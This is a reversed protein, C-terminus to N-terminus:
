NARRAVSADLGASVRDLGARITATDRRSLNGRAHRMNREQRDISQLDGLLRRSDRRGISGDDTAHRISRDLWGIQGRVDGPRDGRLTDDRHDQGRMDENPTASGNTSMWRGNGDYFGSTTGAHWRGRADYYGPAGANSWNGNAQQRSPASGSIWAGNRAYQGSVRGAVWNGGREYHGPAMAPMWQDGSGYYGSAGAPVWRDSADYYGREGINDANPQWHGDSGYYGNPAGDVWQGDRDIYGSVSGRPNASAHWRADRDYYGYAHACENNPKAVQNGLLAGGIGGIIAGLTRDGRGAVSSGLLAGVGAGGVTAVVRTSRQQECTTQALATAPVLAMAALSLATLTKKM